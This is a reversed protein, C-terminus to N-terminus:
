NENEMCDSYECCVLLCVCYVFQVVFSRGRSLPVFVLVYCFAEWGLCHLCSKSNRSTHLFPSFLLLVYWGVNSIPVSSLSLSLRAYVSSEAVTIDTRGGRREAFALHEGEIRSLAGGLYSFPQRHSLRYQQGRSMSFNTRLHSRSTPISPCLTGLTILHPSHNLAYTGM